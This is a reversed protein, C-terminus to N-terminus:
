DNRAHPYECQSPNGQRCPKEGDSCYACNHYEFKPHLPNKRPGMAEDMARELDTKPRSIANLIPVFAKHVHDNSM